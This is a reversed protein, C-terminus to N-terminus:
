LSSDLNRSCDIVYDSIFYKSLIIGIYLVSPSSLVPQWGFYEIALFTQDSIYKAILLKEHEAKHVQKVGFKAKVIM